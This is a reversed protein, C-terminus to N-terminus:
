SERQAASTLILGGNQLTFRVTPRGGGSTENVHNRLETCESELSMGGPASHGDLVKPFEIWVNAKM